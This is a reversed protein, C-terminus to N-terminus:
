GGTNPKPKPHPVTYSPNSVQDATFAIPSPLSCDNAHSYYWWLHIASVFSVYRPRSFYHERSCRCVDPSCSFRCRCGCFIAHQSADDIATKFLTTGQRRRILTQTRKQRRRSAAASRQTVWFVRDRKAINQRGKVKPSGNQVWSVKMKALRLYDVDANFTFDLSSWGVSLNKFGKLHDYLHGCCQM